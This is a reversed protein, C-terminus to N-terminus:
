LVEHELERLKSFLPSLRAIPVKGLLSDLRARAKKLQGPTPSERLRRIQLRCLDALVDDYPGAM